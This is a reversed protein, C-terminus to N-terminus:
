PHASLNRQHRDERGPSAVAELLEHWQPLVVSWDFQETKSRASRSLRAALAPTSVLRDVAAAMAEPDRPETLLGEAGDRVLHPVGGIRTSVVCAGCAMAEVVSVPTNDITTTNLFIDGRDIWSPIEAKPAAGHFRVAAGVGLEGAAARAADLSRDHKDPGIMDLTADPHRSRVLALARVALSPDYIQHFARVWVLRPRPRDRLRFPYRALEIANPILRLANGYSRLGELLYSSPATVRAASRLLRRTRRPWRRAFEPLAGGHLTLIYPKGLTGLAFAAAEAWVFSPGSYVDIHAVDFVRRYRWVAALMDAMRAVRGPRSSTTLVRWGSGALRDSLEECVARNGVSASLFNGVFLVAPHTSM